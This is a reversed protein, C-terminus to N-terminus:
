ASKDDNLEKMTDSLATPSVALVASDIVPKVQLPLRREARRLASPGHKRKLRRLHLKEKTSHVRAPKSLQKALKSHRM